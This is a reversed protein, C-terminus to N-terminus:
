YDKFEVEAITFRGARAMLGNFNAATNRFVINGKLSIVTLVNFYM